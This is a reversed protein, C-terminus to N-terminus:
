WMERMSKAIEPPEPDVERFRHVERLGTDSVLRGAIVQPLGVDFVAGRNHFGEYV